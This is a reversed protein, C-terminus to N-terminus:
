INIIINKIIHVIIDVTWGNGIVNKRQGEEIGETYGIPLTQLIEWATSNLIYFENNEFIIVSSSKTQSSGQATLCPYKDKIEKLNYPNFVHPIYGYKEILLPLKKKVFPVLKIKDKYDLVCNINIRKEIPLTIQINTWYNRERNQGSKLSSNIEIPEVGLYSSIIDQYEKKMKVNELLFIVDPNNYKKIWNLIRVYEFFLKSQPDNFNLQKGITSFGTCPSGGILIDIKPLKSLQEDLLLTVDGIHIIEPHNKKTIKIAYPNIESSYYNDIHIGARDFAVKGCEIGGFLSLVNL